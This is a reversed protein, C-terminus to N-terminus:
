IFILGEKQIKKLIIRFKRNQSNYENQFYDLYESGRPSVKIYKDKTKSVVILNSLELFLIAESISEFLNPSNSLAESLIKNLNYKKQFVNGILMQMESLYIKENYFKLSVLLINAILPVSYENGMFKNDIRAQQNLTVEKGEFLDFVSSM